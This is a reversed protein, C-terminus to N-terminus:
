ISQRYGQESRGPWIGTRIPSGQAAQVSVSFIMKECADSARQLASWDGTTLVPRGTGCEDRIKRREAIWRTFVTSMSSLTVFYFTTMCTYALPDGHLQAQELVAPWTQEWRDLEESLRTLNSLRIKSPPSAYIPTRAIAYGELTAAGTM